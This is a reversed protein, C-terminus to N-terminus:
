TKTQDKPPSEDYMVWGTPVISIGVQGWLDDFKRVHSRVAASLASLGIREKADNVEFIERELRGIAKELDAKEVAAKEFKDAALRLREELAGLQARSVHGRLSWAVVLAIAILVLVLVPAGAIAPWEAELTAKIDELM